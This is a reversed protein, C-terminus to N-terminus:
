HKESFLLGAGIYSAVERIYQPPTSLSVQVDLELRYEKRYGMGFSVKRTKVLPFKDSALFAKLFEIEECNEWYAIRFGTRFRCAKLGWGDNVM